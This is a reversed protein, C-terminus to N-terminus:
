LKKGVKWVECKTEEGGGMDRNKKEREREREEKTNKKEVNKKGTKNIKERKM